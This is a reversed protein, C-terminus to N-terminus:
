ANNRAQLLCEEAKKDVLQLLEEICSKSICQIGARCAARRLGATTVLHKATVQRKLLKAVARSPESAAGPAPKKKTVSATGDRAKKATNKVKHPTRAM